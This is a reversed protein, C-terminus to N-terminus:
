SRSSKLEGSTKMPQIIFFFVALFAELWYSVLLAALAWLTKELILCKPYVKM